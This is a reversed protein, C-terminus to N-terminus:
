VERLQYYAVFIHNPHSFDPGCIWNFHNWGWEDEIDATYADLNGIGFAGSPEESGPVESLCGCAGWCEFKRYHLKEEAVFHVASAPVIHDGIPEARANHGHTLYTNRLSFNSM